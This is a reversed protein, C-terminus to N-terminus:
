PAQDEEDDFADTLVDPWGALGRFTLRDRLMAAADARPVRLAFDDLARAIVDGTTVRMPNEIHLSTVPEALQARVAATIAWDTASKLQRRYHEDGQQQAQDAKRQQRRRELQVFVPQLPLALLSVALAIGMFWLVGVFITDAVANFTDGASAGTTM